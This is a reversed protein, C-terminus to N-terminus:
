PQPRSDFVPRSDIVQRSAPRLNLVATKSEFVTAGSSNGPSNVMYINAGTTGLKGVAVPPMNAPAGPKRVKSSSGFM